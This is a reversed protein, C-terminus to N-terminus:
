TVGADGVGGGRNDCGGGDAVCGFVAEALKSVADGLYGFRGAPSWGSKGSSAVGRGVDGGHGSGGCAGRRGWAVAGACHSSDVGAATLGHSSHQRQQQESQLHPPAMGSQRVLTGSPGVDSGAATEAGAAAKRAAQSAGSHPNAAGRARRVWRDQAERQLREPLELWEAARRAELLDARTHCAGLM